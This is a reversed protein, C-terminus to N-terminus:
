GSLVRRAMALYVVREDFEVRCKWIEWDDGSYWEAVCAKAITDWCLVKGNKTCLLTYKSTVASLWVIDENGPASFSKYSKVPLNPRTTSKWSSQLTHGRKVTNALSATSLTHLRHFGDVPLPECRDLMRTALNLWVPRSKDLDRLAICTQRTILSSPVDLGM